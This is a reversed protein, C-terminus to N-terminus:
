KLILNINRKIKSHQEAFHNTRKIEPYDFETIRVWVHRGVIMYHTGDVVQQFFTGKKKKKGEIVKFINNWSFFLFVAKHMDLTPHYIIKVPKIKAM